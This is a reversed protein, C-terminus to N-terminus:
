SVFYIKEAINDIYKQENFVRDFFDIYEKRVVDASNIDFSKKVLSSVDRFDRLHCVAKMDKTLETFDRIASTFVPIVGSAMYSSLKTPTAVNNVVNDERIVFGFKCSKLEESLQAASVFNISYNRVGYERSTKEALEYDGTYLKLLSNPLHEEVLKYLEVTEKFCQWAATSGVYTFVNTKYKNPYDFSSLDLQTNFCPMIYYNEKFDFNYKQEYHRKMANSVLFTFKSFKLALKEVIELFTKSVKSHNNMYSEEPAVGQIWLILNRYGHFYLNVVESPNAVVIWDKKSIFSYGFDKFLLTNILQLKGTSQYNIFPVKTFNKGSKEVAQAIIDLYYDTVGKNPYNSFIYVM